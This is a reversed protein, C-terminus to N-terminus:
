QYYTTNNGAWRLLSEQGQRTSFLPTIVPQALSLFGRKPEYDNWSELWHSDPAAYQCLAGTEDLRDNM